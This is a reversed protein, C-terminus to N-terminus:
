PLAVDGPAPSASRLPPAGYMGAASASPSVRVSATPAATPEVTPTTTPSTPVPVPENQTREPPPQPPPGGYAPAQEYGRQCGALMLGAAIAVTTARVSAADVASALSGLPTLRSIGCFPCSADSRRLHRHCRSCAELISM